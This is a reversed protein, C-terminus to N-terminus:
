RPGSPSESLGSAGLREPVRSSTAATEQRPSGTSRAVGQVRWRPARTAGLQRNAGDVFYAFRASCASWFVDAVGEASSAGRRPARTIGTIARARDNRCDASRWRLRGGGATSSRMLNLRWAGSRATDGPYGRVSGAIQAPGGRGSTGAAPAGGIRQALEIGRLTVFYGHAPRRHGGGPLNHQGGVHRTCHSSIVNAAAVAQSPRKERM